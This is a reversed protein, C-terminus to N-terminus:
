LDYLWLSLDKKNIFLLDENDSSVVPYIGDISEVALDTVDVVKNAVRSETNIVWLSDSFSVNGKYWDDPYVAKPTFNPVFCYVFERSSFVCKEPITGVNLNTAGGTEKNLLYLVLSNDKTSGILGKNSDTGEKYTLGYINGSIKEISNTKTDVEYVFGGFYGSPKTTIIFNSENPWDLLWESFPSSFIQKKNKGNFDSTFINTYVGEEKSFVIQSSNKSFSLSLIDDDLYEGLVRGIELSSTPIQGGFTKIKGANEDFYRFVVYTGTKDFLAEESGPITTGTIKSKAFGDLPVEYIHGSSKEVYRIYRASFLETVPVSGSATEQYVIRERTADFLTSGSVPQPTIKLLTPRMEVGEENTIEGLTLDEVFVDGGDEIATNFPFLNNFVSNIINISEPNKRNKFFQFGLAFIIAFLFFGTAFYFLKKNKM